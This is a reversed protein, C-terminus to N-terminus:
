AAEFGYGALGLAYGGVESSLGVTSVSAPRYTDAIEALRSSVFDPWLEPDSFSAWAEYPMVYEYLYGHRRFVSGDTSDTVFLPVFSHHMTQQWAVADVADRLEEPGLGLTVIMTVPVKGSQEPHLHRGLKVPVQKRRSAAVGRGRRKALKRLVKNRVRKIGSAFRWLAARVDRPLILKLLRLLPNRPGAPAEDPTTMM